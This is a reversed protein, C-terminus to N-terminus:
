GAPKGEAGRVGAAVLERYRSPTQGVQRAFFKSFYAADDYGLQAAVEAVPMPTYALLRRAELMLREHLMQQASLGSVKRCSRSLHDPTVQLAEAFFALSHQGRYHAEVLALYRQVLTDRVGRRTGEGGQQDRRRLCQVALLTACALLAHVRGPRQERFEEGISAFLPGFVAPDCAPSPLVFSTALGSDALNSGGLLQLLTASPLTVQHGTAGPSYRFGHVTGPALVLLSPAVAELPHGDVTGSIAGHELWQFQHLGEHRHAPITWDLVQARVAVMEYHLCDDPQFHRVERFPVLLLPADTPKM